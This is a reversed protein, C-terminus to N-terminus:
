EIILEELRRKPVHHVDDEDRWYRTDGDPGVDEIVSTEAPEGLAVVLLIDYRDPIALAARLDDRQIAGLMCGGLGREVAGLLINQAAIGHDVGFGKSVDTDGLIIVYGAPREGESPGDWDKLHGAWALHPFIRANRVADASLMYKLPQQNSGSAALRALGVLERLTEESVASSENFRRCSRNKEILNEIM